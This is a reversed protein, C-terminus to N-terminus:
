ELKEGACFVLESVDTVSTIRSAAPHLTRMVPLLQEQPVANLLKGIDGGVGLLPSSPRLAVGKALRYFGRMMNFYLSGGGANREAKNMDYRQKFNESGKVSVLPELQQARPTVRASSGGRLYSSLPRDRLRMDVNPSPHVKLNRQMMTELGGLCSRMRLLKQDRTDHMDNTTKIYAGCRVKDSVYLKRRVATAAPDKLHIAGAHVGGDPKALAPESSGEDGPGERGQAAAALTHVGGVDQGDQM